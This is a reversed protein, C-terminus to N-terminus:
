LASITKSDKCGQLQFIYGSQPRASRRIYNYCYNNALSYEPAEGHELVVRQQGQCCAINSYLIGWFFIPFKCQLEYELTSKRPYNTLEFFFSFFLFRSWEWTCVLQGARAEDFVQWYRSQSINCTLKATKAGVFLLFLPTMKHKCQWATRRSCQMLSIVTKDTLHICLFLQCLMINWIWNWISQCHAIWWAWAIVKQVILAYQSTIQM